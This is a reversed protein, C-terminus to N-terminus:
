PDTRIGGDVTKDIADQELDEPDLGRRPACEQGFFILGALVMDDQEGIHQPSSAEAGVSGQEVAGDQEIILGVQYDANQRRPASKGELM